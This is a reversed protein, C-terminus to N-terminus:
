KADRGVLLRRVTTAEVSYGKRPSTRFTVLQREGDMGIENERLLLKIQNEFHKESRAAAAAQAKAQTWEFVLAALEPGGDIVAGPESTHFRRKIVASTSSSGDAEPPDHADLRKWFADAAAFMDAILLDDREVYTHVFQQGGLLCAVHTGPLGSVANEWQCQALYQVPVVVKGNEDIWEDKRHAGVNKGEYWAIPDQITTAAPIVLRDPSALAITLEKSRYMTIEPPQFTVVDTEKTFADAIPQELYTGWRMAESEKFDDDVEGSKELYLALPSKFPSLGLVAAIDSGGIGRKREELWEDRTMGEGVLEAGPLQPATM